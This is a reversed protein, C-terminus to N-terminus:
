SPKSAIAINAVIKGGWRGGEYNANLYRTIAEIIKPPTGYKEVDEKSWLRGAVGAVLMGTAEGFREADQDISVEYEHIRVDTFGAAACREEILSARDYGKSVLKIADPLAPAGPYAENLAAQIMQWWSLSKWSTLGAQGGPKLVRFTEKLGAM